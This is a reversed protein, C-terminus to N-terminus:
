RTVSLVTGSSRAAQCCSSTQCRLARTTQKAMGSYRGHTRSSGLNRLSPKYFHGRRTYRRSASTSVRPDKKGSWSVVRSSNTVCSHAEEERRGKQQADEEGLAIQRRLEKCRAGCIAVAKAGKEGGYMKLDRKERELNTEADQVQEHLSEPSPSVAGAMIAFRCDCGGRASDDLVAGNGIRLRLMCGDHLASLREPGNVFTVCGDCQFSTCPM